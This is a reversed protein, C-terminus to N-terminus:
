KWYGWLLFSCVLELFAEEGALSSWLGLYFNELVQVQSNMEQNSQEQQGCMGPKRYGSSLVTDDTTCVKVSPERGQKACKSAAIKPYDDAAQETRSSKRHM